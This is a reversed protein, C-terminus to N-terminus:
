GQRTRNSKEGSIGADVNIKCINKNSTIVKIISSKATGWLGQSAGNMRGGRRSMAVDRFSLVFWLILTSVQNNFCYGSVHPCAVHGYEKTTDVVCAQLATLM